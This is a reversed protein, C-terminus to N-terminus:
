IGYHRQLWLLGLLVIAEVVIVTLYTRTWNRPSPDSM